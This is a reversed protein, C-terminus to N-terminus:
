VGAQLATAGGVWQLYQTVLFFIGVVGIGVMFLAVLPAAIRPNALLKMDFLPESLRHQRYVFLGLVVLGVATLGLHPWASGTGTEQGAALEQLGYVVALMGVVSLV